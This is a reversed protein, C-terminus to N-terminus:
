VENFLYPLKEKEFEILANLCADLMEGIEINSVKRNCSMGRGLYKYWSVEIDKWKFNYPQEIDENWNYAEIEFETCQWKQGTNGFPNSIEEQYINWMVRDWERSIDRLAAEMLNSCGYTQWPQGFAMQGLEPEYNKGM